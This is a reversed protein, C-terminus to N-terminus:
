PIPDIPGPQTPFSLPKPVYLEVAAMAESNPSLSAYMLAASSPNCVSTKALHWMPMAGQGAKITAKAEATGESWRRAGCQRCQCIQQLSEEMCGPELLGAVDSNIISM